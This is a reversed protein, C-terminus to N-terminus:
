TACCTTGILGGQGVGNRVGGASSCLVQESCKSLGCPCTWLFSHRHHAPHEDQTPTGTRIGALWFYIAGVAFLVPIASSFMLIIVIFKCAFQVRFALYIDADAIYLRDMALQTKARPALVFRRVLVDPHIWDLLVQLRM